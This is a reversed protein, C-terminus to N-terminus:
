HQTNKQDVSFCSWDHSPFRLQAEALIAQAQDTEDVAMLFRISQCYGDLYQPFRRRVFLWREAAAEASIHQEALQALITAVGTDTPFQPRMETLFRDAEEIEGLRMMAHGQGVIGMPHQFRENVSRWRSKAAGWDLRTEAVRAYGIWGNIIDPFRSTAQRLVGEAEDLRGVQRLCEAANSHAVISMPFKKRVAQWRSIALELNGRHEAVLAYGEAYRPVGPFSKCGEFMLAEAKDFLKLGLLVDLAESAQKVYSPYRSEADDWHQMASERDGLELSIKAHQLPNNGSRALLESESRVLKALEALACRREWWTQVRNFM